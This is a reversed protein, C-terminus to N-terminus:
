PNWFNHIDVSVPSHPLFNRTLYRFPVILAYESGYSFSTFAVMTPNRHFLPIALNSDILEAKPLETSPIILKMRWAAISGLWKASLETSWFGANWIIEGSVEYTWTRHGHDAIGPINIIMFIIKTGLYNLLYVSCALPM